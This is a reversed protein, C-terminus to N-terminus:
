ESLWLKFTRDYSCTAILQGDPSIDLGMVKGEHGALTKLPSWGPHTWVKATNDYAGTLLFNGHIPEFKVGTVLNQHAPITYVCRRQRLDWVKCTNDGSGTAIHYGNPSFNIGYIEKLHGELFMICRGTRLDWVRGFADLGCLCSLSSSPQTGAKSLLVCSLGSTGDLPGPHAKSFFTGVLGGCQGPVDSFCLSMETHASGTGALSGDQHFAIDYVGMSHGEQHLIEEQAELDWLRWSHDYCTTGLFRGSPHWMVRAVRVTHGEIDAVPEDSDLSWLKVSGDAACSALNVDKKDLSVTAKPHFVVAGVNTNHGRLTHILNCDPISWLKCLGSWCATALMKSNPSFHCYSIPRDDGIQSCFNNLSRLAKHLEQKQSTRSTEPIEKHLRAEELRKMARPLSYNAIWLRATKLSNPGEHYWTQQYEERSKKSKEDDKKTKKLADTGVVSLINRLRERREAPGEGFLTIPEGLARLCAKVESDDTSVNIQRARKRREFEALVEAQRESIHEEIEFVEGTTININGAEIAAKVGEKGLLGSEGKALREREKEELSGYFIHAKKVVMVPNDEPMRSAKAPTSAARSAAM